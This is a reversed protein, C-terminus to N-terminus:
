DYIKKNQRKKKDRMNCNKEKLDFTIKNIINENKKKTYIYKKELYSIAFDIKNKDSFLKKNSFSILKILFFRFIVM